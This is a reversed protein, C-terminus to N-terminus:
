RRRCACVRHRDDGGRHAPGAARGRDARARQHVRRLQAAAGGAEGMSGSNDIVFLLDLKRNLNVPLVKVDVLDQGPPLQSIPRDVCGLAGGLICSVFVVGSARM